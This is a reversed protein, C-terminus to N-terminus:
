VVPKFKTLDLRTFQYTFVDTNNIISFKKFNWIDALYEMASKEYPKLEQMTTVSAEILKGKRFKLKVAFKETIIDEIQETFRRTQLNEM